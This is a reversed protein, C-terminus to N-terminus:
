NDSIIASLKLVCMFFGYSLSRQDVNELRAVARRGPPYIIPDDIYCLGLLIVKVLPLGYAWCYYGMM